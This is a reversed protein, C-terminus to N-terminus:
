AAVHQEVKSRVWAIRAANLHQEYRARAEFYEVEGFPHCQSLGDESFMRDLVKELEAREETDLHRSWDILNSCLGWRRSFPKQDPAGAEVWELWASLFAKLHDSM